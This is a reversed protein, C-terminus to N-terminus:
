MKPGCKQFEWMSCSGFHKESALVKIGNRASERCKQYAIQM